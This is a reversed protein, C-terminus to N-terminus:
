WIERLDLAFGSLVPDCSVAEPGDLVEVERDRRYVHVRRRQPDILLGMEAGNDLYEQMKEPLGRLRDSESRLEVVFDPCLPAFQKKEEATLANWRPLRLWSADPSRVAGNPLRFGASSDFSKGSGDRKAWNRLQTTIEANRDGMGSAAPLMILLEGRANREIRLERIVQCFEMLQSDSLDVVPQLRIVIPLLGMDETQQKQTPVIM